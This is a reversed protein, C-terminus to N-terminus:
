QSTVELGDSSKIKFLKSAFPSVETERFKYKVQRVLLQHEQEIGQEMGQQFGKAQLDEAWQKARQSLMAKAESLETVNSLFEDQNAATKLVRKIWIIFSRGLDTQKAADLQAFLQKLTQEMAHMSVGNELRIMAAVLNKLSAMDADNYSGEDVLFYNM